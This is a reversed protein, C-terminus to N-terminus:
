AGEVIANVEVVKPEVVQRRSFVLLQNTLAAARTAARQVEGLTPRLPDAAALQGLALESYGLIITLLNNFDHAVGGALRGVAEMKQAQRFQDELVRHETVSEMIGVMRVARGNV